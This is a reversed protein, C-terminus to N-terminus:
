KAEVYFLKIMTETLKDEDVTFEDYDDSAKYEGDISLFEIDKYSDLNDLTDTVLYTMKTADANTVSEDKVINYMDNIISPDKTVSPWVQELFENMYHVQRNVRNADPNLESQDWERSRIYMIADHGKLTFEENESVYRNENVSYFKVTPTLTVGGVSDNLEEVAKQSISYYTDFKMGRFLRELSKITNECSKEKGDGYAYSLCIQTNETKVFEGNKDYTDVDVMANRSVNLISVKENATDNVLIYIFDAYGGDGVHREPHESDEEDIGLLVLTTVDENFNYTKGKYTITKGDNSVGDVNAEDPTAEIKMDDYDRMKKSGIDSLVTVASVAIAVVVALIVLFIILPKKNKKKSTDNSVNNVENSM